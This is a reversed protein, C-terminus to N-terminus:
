KKVIVTRDKQVFHVWGTAEMMKLFTALNVQRPIKGFFRQEIDDEYIVTIDYWRAAQQMVERITVDEFSFLGNKWAAAQGAAVPEGLRLTQGSVLEAQQGEKLCLLQGAANIKMQGDIVTAHCCDEDPYARVDLETDTAEVDMTKSAGAGHAVQILFPKGSQGAVRFYAEGTLEVRRENGEFHVPYRLRSANNLWVSTGDPLIVSFQGARPTTLVNYGTDARFGKRMRRYLITGERRELVRCVGQRALEGYM